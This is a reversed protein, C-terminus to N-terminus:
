PLILKYNRIENGTFISLIQERYYFSEISKEQLPLIQSTEKELDYISLITGKKLLLQKSSVIQMSDYEPVNGLFNIKGFINSAFLQNEKNIWYFYNYDSQTKAIPSEFVVTIPNFTRKLYNYLGLKQTAFDFLWLQNQSAMCVWQPQLEPNTESFNIKVTENLQNDLLVVANMEKYFLVLQLPNQLDVKEIKGLALNKYEQKKLSSEKKLVNDKVYYNFGFADRGVFSDTETKESSIFTINIKKEQSFGFSFLLFLTIKLFRLM